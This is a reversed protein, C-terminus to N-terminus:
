DCTATGEISQQGSHATVDVRRTSPPLHNLPLARTAGALVYVARESYEAGSARVSLDDLRLAQEGRNSALLVPKRADQCQLHWQLTGATAKPPTAFIPIGIRLVVNLERAKSSGPTPIEQVFLRWALEAMPVNGKRRGVRVVQEAGADLTFIPPSVILDDTASYDDSGSDQVWHKVDLQLLTPASGTNTVTLAVARKDQQLDLRTPAVRLSGAASVAQAILLM